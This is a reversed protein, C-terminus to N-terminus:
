NISRGSVGQMDDPNERNSVQTVALNGRTGEVAMYVLLIIIDLLVMLLVAVGLHHDHVPWKQLSFCLEM